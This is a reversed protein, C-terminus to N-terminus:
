WQYLRARIEDIKKKDDELNIKQLYSKAKEHIMVVDKAFRGYEERLLAEVGKGRNAIGRMRRLYGFFADDLELQLSNLKDSLEKNISDDM